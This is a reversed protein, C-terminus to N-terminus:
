VDDIKVRNWAVEIGEVEDFAKYVTKFAGKGLVESFRVYRGSPDKEVYKAEDHSADSKQVVGNAATTTTTTASPGTERSM